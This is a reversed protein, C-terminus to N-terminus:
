QHLLDNDLEKNTILEPQVLMCVYISNLHAILKGILLCQHLNTARELLHSKRYRLWVQMCLPILDLCDSNYSIFETM